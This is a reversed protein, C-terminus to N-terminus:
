NIDSLDETSNTNYKHAYMSNIPDKLIIFMKM